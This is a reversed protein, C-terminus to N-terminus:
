VLKHQWKILALPIVLISLSLTGLISLSLVLSFLEGDPEVKFEQIGMLANVLLDLSEELLSRILFGILFTRVLRDRIYNIISCKMLPTLAIIFVVSLPWILIFLVQSSNNLVLNLSGLGM